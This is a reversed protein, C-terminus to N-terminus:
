PGDSPDEDALGDEDLLDDEDANATATGGLSPAKTAVPVSDDDALGDEDLFDDEDANATTTGGLSPAKTAVPGSDDDAFGDEDMLDDQDAHTATAGGHTAANTAAPADEDALEEDALDVADILGGVGGPVKAVVPADKEKEEREEDALGDEDLLDDIAGAAAKPSALDPRLPEDEDALDDIAGAAAAVSAKAATKSSVSQRSHRSGTSQRGGSSSGSGRSSPPRPPQNLQWDSLGFDEDHVDPDEEKNSLVSLRYGLVGNGSTGTSAKRVSSGNVAVAVASDADGDADGATEEASTAKLLPASEELSAAEASKSQPLRRCMIILIGCLAVLTACGWVIGLAILMILMFKNWDDSKDPEDTPVSFGRTLMPSSTPELMAPPIHSRSAALYSAVAPQSRILRPGTRRAAELEASTFQDEHRRPEVLQRRMVGTALAAGGRERAHGVAGAKELAGGYTLAVELMSDSDDSNLPVGEAKPLAAAGAAAGHADQVMLILVTLSALSRGVPRVPARSRPRM